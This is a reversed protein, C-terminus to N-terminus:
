VQANDSGGSNAAIIDDDTLRRNPGYCARIMREIATTKSQGSLRCYNELMEFTDRAIKINLPRGNKVVKSSM